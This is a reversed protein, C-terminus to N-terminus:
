DIRRASIQATSGASTIFTQAQGAAVYYSQTYTSTAAPAYMAFGNVTIAVSGAAGTANSYTVRVEVAHTPTYNVTASAGMTAVLTTSTGGLLDSTFM